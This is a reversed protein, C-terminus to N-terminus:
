KRFIALDVNLLSSSHDRKEYSSNTQLFSVHDNEFIKLYLGVTQRRFLVASMVYLPFINVNHYFTDCIKKDNEKYKLLNM